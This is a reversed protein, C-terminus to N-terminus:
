YVTFNLSSYSKFLRSRAFVTNVILTRETSYEISSYEVRYSYLLLKLVTTSLLNTSYHLTSLTSNAVTAVLM